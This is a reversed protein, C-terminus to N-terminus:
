NFISFLTLMTNHFPCRAHFPINNDQHYVSELNQLFVGHSVIDTSSYTPTTQKQRYEVVTSSFQDTYGPLFIDIGQFRAGKSMWGNKRERM